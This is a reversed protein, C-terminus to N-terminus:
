LARLNATSTDATRLWIIKPPSREALSMDYFDSDLTVIALGQDRAVQRIARDDAQALGLDTVHRSGPFSTEVAAILKFSLNEDFLLTV